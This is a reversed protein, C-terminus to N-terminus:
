KYMQTKTKTKQFKSFKRLAIIRFEKDSLEYIEKDRHDTVPFNHEQPPTM